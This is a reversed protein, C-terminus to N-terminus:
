ALIVGHAVQDGPVHRRFLSETEPIEVLGDTYGQNGSHVAVGLDRGSYAELLVLASYSKAAWRNATSQLSDVSLSQTGDITSSSAGTTLLFIKDVLNSQKLQKVASRTHDSGSFPIFATISMIANEGTLKHLSLRLRGARM